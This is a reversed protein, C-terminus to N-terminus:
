GDAPGLRTVEVGNDCGSGGTRCADDGMGGEGTGGDAGSRGLVVCGTM